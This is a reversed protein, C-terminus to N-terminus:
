KKIELTVMKLFISGSSHRSLTEKNVTKNIILINSSIDIQNVVM